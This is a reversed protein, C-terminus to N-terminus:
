APCSSTVAPCFMSRRRPSPDNGATHPALGIGAEEPLVVRWRRLGPPSRWAAAGQVQDGDTTQAIALAGPGVGFAAGAFAFGLAFDHAAEFAVDGALDVVGEAGVEGLELWGRRAHRGRDEASAGTEADGSFASSM